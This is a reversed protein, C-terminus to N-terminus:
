KKKNKYRVALGEMKLHGEDGDKYIKASCSTGKEEDLAMSIMLWGFNAIDTWDMKDLNRELTILDKKLQKKAKTM